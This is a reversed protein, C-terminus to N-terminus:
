SPVGILKVKLGAATGDGIVDVDVTIKDDDAISSVSIVPPTAATTSTDEGNDITIKTSLITTGNKHIDITVIGGGGSGTQATSLSARVATLTMAQSARFTILDTDVILPTTEDSCAAHEVIVGGIYIWTVPSDDTLMWITNNDTQRAFKGVDGPVMGTAAARAATDAYEWNHPAHRKLLAALKHEVSM